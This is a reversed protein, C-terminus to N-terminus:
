VMTMDALDSAFNLNTNRLIKRKLKLIRAVSQDIREVSIVGNKVADLVANYAREYNLPLLIMDVGALIASVSADECTYHKTIAGMEMSDTVIVGRFGLEGRLKDTVIIPSLSAPIDGGTVNPLSLHSVMIINLGSKIGNDFPVIDNVLMQEWVRLDEVYNEHTDLSAAGLGPFHKMCGEIGNKILGELFANALSSVVMPDSSFARSSIGLNSKASIVDVVPAFNIDIGYIHLYLGIMKGIEFFFKREGDKWGCKDIPIKPLNFSRNNAIRSVSGGEEDVCVLPYNPLMHINSTLRILQEPSLINSSFLVFGGCPFKHFQRIQRHTLSSLAHRDKLGLSEPRIIFLQGIKEYISMGNLECIVDSFSSHAVKDNRSFFSSIQSILSDMETFTLFGIKLVSFEILHIVTFLAYVRLLM